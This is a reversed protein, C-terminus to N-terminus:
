LLRSSPTTHCSRDLPPGSRFTLPRSSMSSLQPPPLALHFSYFTSCFSRPVPTVSSLPVRQCSFFSSQLSTHNSSPTESEGRTRRRDVGEPFNQEQSRTGQFIKPSTPAFSVRSHPQSLFFLFITVHRSRRKSKKTKQKPEGRLRDILM